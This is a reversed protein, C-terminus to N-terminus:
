DRDWRPQPAQQDAQGTSWPDHVASRSGPAPPVSGWPDAAPWTEPAAAPPEPAPDPERGFVDGGPMWPPGGYGSSPVDSRKIAGLGRRPRAFILALVTAGVFVAVLGYVLMPDTAVDVEPPM